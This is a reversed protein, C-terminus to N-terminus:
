KSNSAFGNIECLKIHIIVSVDHVIYSLKLLIPHNVKYNKILPHRIKGFLICVNRM